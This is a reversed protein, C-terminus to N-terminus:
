AAARELNPTKSNTRDLYQGRWFERDADDLGGNEIVRRCTYVAQEEGMADLLGSQHREYAARLRDLVTM